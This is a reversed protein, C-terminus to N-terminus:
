PSFVVNSVDSSALLPVFAFRLKTYYQFTLRVTPVVLPIAFPVAIRSSNQLEM